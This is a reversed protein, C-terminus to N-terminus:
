RVSIFKSFVKYIFWPVYGYCRMKLSKDGFAKRKLIDKKFEKLGDKHKQKEKRDLGTYVNIVNYACRVIHENQIKEYPLKESFEIVRKCVQLASLLNKETKKSTMVSNERFRRIYIKEHVHAACRALSFLQYSMIMDEYMIGEEFLLDNGKFIDKHLFFFPTGVHFEKNSIMIKMIETPKGTDYKKHYDYNGKIEIGNSDVTKAEIFVLDAKESHACMIMTKLASNELWDDSDLFYIYEGSIHKLGENRASSAGGNQKHIVKIFDYRSAYDDCIKGSSDASGDNVLIIEFNKYTQNLVSDVCQKLYKEANYVPIIVSILGYDVM